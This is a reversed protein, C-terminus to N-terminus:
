RSSNPASDDEIESRLTGRAMPQTQAYYRTQFQQHFKQQIHEEVSIGYATASFEHGFPSKFIGKIRKTSLLHHLNGILHDFKKAKKEEDMRRQSEMNNEYQDQLDALLQDGKLTVGEIYRKRAYFDLRSKRSCHGRFCKQILTAMRDYFLKQQALRHRFRVDFQVYNRANYGRYIRQIQTASANLVHFRTRAGFMRFYSQISVAANLEPVRNTEREKLKEFYLDVVDNRSNWLEGYWDANTQSEVNETDPETAPLAAVTENPDDVATMKTIDAM